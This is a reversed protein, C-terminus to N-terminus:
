RCTTNKQKEAYREARAEKVTAVIEEMTISDEDPLGAQRRRETCERCWRRYWELNNEKPEDEVCTKPLHDAIRRETKPDFTKNCLTTVANM